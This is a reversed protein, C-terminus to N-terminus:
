VISPTGKKTVHIRIIGKCKSEELIRKPTMITCAIQPPGKLKYCRELGTSRDPIVDLWHVDKTHGRIM